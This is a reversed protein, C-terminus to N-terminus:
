FICYYMMVYLTHITIPDPGPTGTRNIMRWLNYKLLGSPASSTSSRLVWDTQGHNEGQQFKCAIM